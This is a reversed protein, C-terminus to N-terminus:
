FADRLLERLQTSRSLDQKARRLRYLMPCDLCVCSVEEEGVGMCSSCVQKLHHQTREWQRMRASLTVTVTQPDRRCQPCLPEKTQEDCVPCNTVSFYQSITGKKNEGSGSSAPIVKVIRPMEQYWTFVNVGLLSLFRDLPPLIQKTIYYTTNLRLSSDQLLEMPQRVLQILPLGPSGYVIVYPVREGVRPESRHDARIRKKAIELAPVCAGPKYGSMGRYEKAFICDQLSVRGQLLKVCQKLVYQKILSVDRSAFLVKICKELIKSVAPCNDRRVTEVGKADFVPEKQDPTEYMYGFYRKKTQLVCPQYVKEFKLKIPKPNSATVTNAIEQGIRFAEDKSRGHLEIFMSDTDGYVVRARWEPTNEVLEIARELTERAKRVISDGVEVCPMRGSFNAGTYGYTVNAILKLGLQRADLLRSLGKDTKYNKMEKKVMIRTNLIEEVMSSIIGKRIHEKAFVVGNPSITVDDKLKRLLAPSVSLSTCGFEIPGDQTKALNELRGLCTSFCYNYAIMISPYLSQFDLVVVPHTYFRSEPELTLPICEPAKMRARQQINPSCPIFNLPKALRLMMSEVRYQSGRSLVHFFEIGFVRAFESTRGILNLQEMLEHNGTVRSVYYDIVRWRYLHTRHSFWSTLSRYSYKPLRHHLVHFAVNEFTYQNLTVEHRMIRWLNLVIRGTIHIESMHDAGYEDKEASMHSKEKADPVRSIQTCLDIGLHSARTLLYGLSLMQIEYGVLIDPDWRKILRLFHQFLALEDTVYSIELGSVGSKQLLLSGVGFIQKPKSTSPQPSLTEKSMSPQPSLTEKSTSPQPSTQKSTFPKQSSTQKSTSPQPSSTQKSTSPQPSTQKSTFPKQSSTQKSTSPQPSSTQESTSPQPSSTQESTSPQPSSTQESTSPQPSSTQKITSSQPSSKPSSPCGKSAKEKRKLSHAGCASAEDVLIVGNVERRGQGPPVDNRISYFVGLIPDVEPDPMKDGRTEVHLEVSLVSLHQVEHLAQSDPANNQSFRFGFTNKPTPGDIQSIDANSTSPTALSQVQSALLSRRLPTQTNTSLRRRPPCHLPGRMQKGTEGAKKQSGSIPTCTVNFLETNSTLKLPTSQIPQSDEVYPCILKAQIINNRDPVGVLDKSEASSKSIRLSGSELSPKLQNGPCGLKCIQKMLGTEPLSPVSSSPCPSRVVKDLTDKLPVHLEKQHWDDSHNFDVYNSLCPNVPTHVIKPVKTNREAVDTKHIDNLENNMGDIKKKNYKKEEDKKQQKKEMWRVVSKSSPALSCPCIVKVKDGCVATHLQAGTELRNVVASDITQSSFIPDNEAVITRWSLLGTGAFQSTFEELDEAMKSTLKMVRGGVERSKEPLDAPDSCFAERVKVDYLATSGEVSHWAPPRIAPTLIVRTPWGHGEIQGDPSQDENGLSLFSPAKFQSGNPAKCTVIPCSGSSQSANEGAQKGCQAQKQCVSAGVDNPELSQGQTVRLLDKASLGTELYQIPKRLQPVSRHDTKSADGNESKMNNLRQWPKKACKKISHNRIITQRHADNKLQDKEAHYNNEEDGAFSHNSSPTVEFDNASAVGQSLRINRSFDLMKVFGEKKLKSKEALIEEAKESAVMDSCPKDSDLSESESLSKESDEYPSVKSCYLSPPQAEPIKLEDTNYRPINPPGLDPPSFTQKKREVSPPTLAYKAPIKLNTKKLLFPHDRKIVSVAKFPIDTAPKPESIPKDSREESLHPMTLRPLDTDSSSAHSSTPSKLAEKAGLNEVSPLPTEYLSDVSTQTLYLCSKSTKSLNSIEPSNGRPVNVNSYEKVTSTKSSNDTGPSLPQPPSNDGKDSVPPSVLALKHMVDDYHAKHDDCKDTYTVSDTLNALTAQHLLSLSNMVIGTNPTSARKRKSKKTLFAVGLRQNRTLARKRSRQRNKGYVADCSSDDKMESDIELNSDSNSTSNPTSDANLAAGAMRREQAMLECCESEWAKNAEFVRDLSGQQSDSVPRRRNYVRECIQCQKVSQLFEEVNVFSDEINSNGIHVVMRKHGKFKGVVIYHVGEKMDSEPLGLGSLKHRRKHRCRFRSAKIDEDSASDENEMELFSTFANRGYNASSRKSRREIWSYMQQGGDAMQELDENEVDDSSYKPKCRSKKKLSLRRKNRQKAPLRDSVVSCRGQKVKTGDVMISEEASGYTSSNVDTYQSRDVTKLCTFTKETQDAIERPAKVCELQQGCTTSESKGGINVDNTSVNTCYQSPDAMGREESVDTFNSNGNITQDACTYRSNNKKVNSPVTSNFQAPNDCINPCNGNFVARYGIAVPASKHEISLHSSFDVPQFPKSSSQPIILNEQNSVEDESSIPEVGAYMAMSPPLNDGYVSMPPYTCDNLVEKMRTQDGAKFNNREKDIASYVSLNTSGTDIDTAKVQEPWATNNQSILSQRSKDLCGRFVDVGRHLGKNVSDPVKRQENSAFSTTKNVSSDMLQTPTHPPCSGHGPDCKDVSTVCSSSVPYSEGQSSPWKADENGHYDVPTCNRLQGPKVKDAIHGGLNPPVLKKKSGRSICTSGDPGTIELLLETESKRKCCKGIALNPKSASVKCKKAAKKKIPSMRKQTATVSTASPTSNRVNVNLPAKSKLQAKIRLVDTLKLLKVKVLERGIKLLSYKRADMPHMRVISVDAMTDASKKQLMKMRKYVPTPVHFSYSYTSSLKSPSDAPLSYHRHLSLGLKKMRGAKGRESIPPSKNSLAAPYYPPLTTSVSFGAKATSVGGMNSPPQPQKPSLSWAESDQSCPASRQRIHRVAPSYTQYDQSSLHSSGMWQPRNVAASSFVSECGDGQVNLVFNELSSIVSSSPYPLQRHPMQPQWHNPDRQSATSALGGSLETSPDGSISSRSSFSSHSSTSLPRSKVLRSDAFLDEQSDGSTNLPQSVSRDYQPQADIPSVQGSLLSSIMRNSKGLPSKVSQQSTSSHDLHTLQSSMSSHVPFQSDLSKRSDSYGPNTWVPSMQAQAMVPFSPSLMQRSPSSHVISNIQPNGANSYNQPSQLLTDMPSSQSGRTSLSQNNTSNSLPSISAVSSVSTSMPEIHTSDLPTSHIARSNSYFQQNYTREQNPYQNKLGVPSMPSAMTCYPRKYAHHQFQEPNYPQTLNMYGRLEGHPVDRNHDHQHGRHTPMYWQGEALTQSAPSQQEHQGSPQWTHKYSGDRPPGTCEQRGHPVNNYSRYGQPLTRQDSSQLLRSLVPGRTGLRKMVPQDTAPKEDMPGDLQLIKEEELFQSETWTDEFGKVDCDGVGHEAQGGASEGEEGDETMDPPTDWIRQSMELEEEENELCPPLNIACPVGSLVSDRDELASVQCVQSAEPSGGDALTALLNVLSQDCLAEHQSNSPSDFGPSSMIVKNISDRNVILPVLRDDKDPGKYDELTITDQSSAESESLQSLHDYVVSAPTSDLGSLDADEEIKEELSEQSSQSSLYPLQELLIEELREKLRVESDAEQMSDREQSQPPTIQSTEGRDRKRQREDEWLAALGPNAGLNADVELRNLIDAAVVDVELECTSVRPVTM